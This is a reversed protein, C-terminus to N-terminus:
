PELFGLGTEGRRISIALCFFDGQYGSPNILSLNRASDFRRVRNQLGNGLREALSGIEQSRVAFITNNVSDGHQFNLDKAM